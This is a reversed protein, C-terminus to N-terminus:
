RRYLRNRWLCVSFRMVNPKSSCEALRKLESETVRWCRVSMATCVHVNNAYCNVCDIQYKQKNLFLKNYAATYM